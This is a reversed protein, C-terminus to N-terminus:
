YDVVLRIMPMTLVIIVKIKLKINKRKIEKKGRHM